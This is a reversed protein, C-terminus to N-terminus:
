IKMNRYLFFFLILFDVLYDFFINSDNMNLDSLDLLLDVDSPQKSTSKSSKQQKSKPIPKVVKEEEEEENIIISKTIRRMSM